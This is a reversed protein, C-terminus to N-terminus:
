SKPPPTAVKNYRSIISIAALSFKSKYVPAFYFLNSELDPLWSFVQFLKSVLNSKTGNEQQQKERVIKVLATEEYDYLGNCIFQNGSRVISKIDFLRGQIWIEKGQEAWNLDDEHITVTQLMSQELKEKM